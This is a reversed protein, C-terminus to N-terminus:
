HAAAAWSVGFGVSVDLPVKLTVAHSMVDRVLETVQEREGPAIEVILEDHVQLLVRSALQQERLARDAGIMALKIIDAATGQIPANLAAREAMERRQTNTSNLDPLYRRRGLLTQTYGTRRAQAVIGALYDRVGGFTAFYDDMLARADGVAIGLRGALGFASLGYALGYNMQKVSSRQAPSVQAPDLHYVHSATVTHFDVGSTFADILAQDGSGDAMVRMEIQSYDASLLGEFGPGAVFGERVRRGEDTRVPINQLNPDTSSLRGTAAATQQYTTHIRGDDRVARLLGDVIQRLKIADRHELLHALFPHGTKAYLGELAEADTTYGSATRKTKPMNLEDFLVGQLQKPSALNIPHGIVDFAAQEAAVVRADVEDRLGGLQDEDVAIGTAEMQALVREVPLEVNRLLADQGVSALESDLKGSLEVIAHARMMSADAGEDPEDFLQGQPAATDAVRLERNLYQLCLDELKYGRQDPRLLYAALETDCALGRLDWGRAWCALLPGKAAHAVKPAESALWAVLAREDEVSLSAVSVWAAQGGPSALGLADLDGAGAGWHGVLDLGTVADDAHGALWGVLDGPALRRGELEIGAPQAAPEGPTGLAEFLRDRLTRFELVDFLDNIQERDPAALALGDPTVPLDVDRVLANLRRNLRVDDLHERLSDGVKGSVQDANALLTDLDGYQTLWKLATKPGVGPVGHLNDSAEGVLAALEPYQQPPLGYKAQVADPTMQELDTAGRKPYLVSVRDTVLQLMDRDGTCIAVRMGAAAAQTSLTALIDDAEFEPKELHVVNAADLVQKILPVQGEFQPPASSRTGKYDAYEDTRFSHRSVDFAVGIHTPHQSAVVTALMSVFGYVANTHQGTTTEFNEFPLGYFARFAMSHGDILLLLPETESM